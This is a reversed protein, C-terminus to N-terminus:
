INGFLLAPPRECIKAMCLFRQSLLGYRVKSYRCPHHEHDVRPPCNIVGSKLTEIPIEFSGYRCINDAHSAEGHIDDQRWAAITTMCPESTPSRGYLLLFLGSASKVASRRLKWKSDNTYVSRTCTQTYLRWSCRVLYQAM